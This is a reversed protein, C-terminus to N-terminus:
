RLPELEDPDPDYESTRIGGPGPAPDKLRREFEEVRENDVAAETLYIHGVDFKSTRAAAHRRFLDGLDGLTGVFVEPVGRPAARGGFFQRVSPDVYLTEGGEGAVTVYVHFPAHVVDAAFGARRLLLAAKPAADGCCAQHLDTGAGNWNGRRVAERLDAVRRRVARRVPASAEERGSLEFVGSAAARELVSSSLPAEPEPGAMADVRRLVREWAVRRDPRAGLYSEIAERAAAPDKRIEGAVQAAALADADMSLRLDLGERGLDLDLAALVGPRDFAAIQAGVGAGGPFAPLASPRVIQAAGAPAALWAALFLPSLRM